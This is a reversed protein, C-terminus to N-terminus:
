RCTTWPVPSVSTSESRAGLGGQLTREALLGDVPERRARLSPTSRARGPRRLREVELLEMARHLEAFDEEVVADPLRALIESQLQGVASRLESM